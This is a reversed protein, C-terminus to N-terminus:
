YRNNNSLEGEDTFVGVNNPAILFMGNSVKQITGDLAYVAGSLFDVIRRSVEKDVLELNMVIPKRAKLHNAIDRAEDFNMPQMVVLKMQPTPVSNEMRMNRHSRRSQVYEEQPEDDYMNDDMPIDEYTEYNEDVPDIGVMNLMKNVISSM